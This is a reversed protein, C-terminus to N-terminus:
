RPSPSPVQIVSILNRVLGCPVTPSTEVVKLLTNCSIWFKINKMARQKRLYEM